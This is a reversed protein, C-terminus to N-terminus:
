KQDYTSLSFDTITSLATLIDRHILTIISKYLSIPLCLGDFVATKFGFINNQQINRVFFIHNIRNNTTSFCSVNLDWFYLMSSNSTQINTEAAVNAAENFSVDNLFAHLKWKISKNINNHLAKFIVTNNTHNIDILISVLKPPIDLSNIDNAITIFDEVDSLHRADIILYYSIHAQQIIKNKVYEKDLNHDIRTKEAFAYKCRYNEIYYFGDKTSIPKLDKIHYPIDFECSHELDKNEKVFICGKCHTNAM